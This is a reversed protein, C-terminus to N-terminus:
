AVIKSIESAKDVTEKIEPEISELENIIEKIEMDSYINRNKDRMKYVHEGLRRMLEERRKKLEESRYLLKFVEIEIRTRESLLTSFWKIKGIAGEIDGKIRNYM